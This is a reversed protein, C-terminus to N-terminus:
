GTENKKQYVRMRPTLKEETTHLCLGIVFSLKDKSSSIIIHIILDKLATTRLKSNVFGLLNV